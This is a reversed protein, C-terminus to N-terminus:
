AKIRQGITEFNTQHKGKQRHIQKLFINKM